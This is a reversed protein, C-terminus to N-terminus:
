CVIVIAVSRAITIEIFYAPAGPIHAYIATLRSNNGLTKKEIM